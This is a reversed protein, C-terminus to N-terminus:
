PTPVATTAPVGDFQIEIEATVKQGKTRSNNLSVLLAPGTEEYFDGVEGDTEVKVNRIRANLTTGSRWWQMMKQHASLSWVGTGSVTVEQSRVERQIEYPVSEDDCDPVESTDVNSTRNTNLDTIGCIRTFTDSDAVFEVELVYEQFKATAARTM